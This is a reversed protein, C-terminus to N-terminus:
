LHIRNLNKNRAPAPATFTTSSASGVGMTHAREGKDAPSRAAM